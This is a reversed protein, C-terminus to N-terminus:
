RGLRSKLYRRGFGTKLQVERARAGLESRCAEYYVLKVPLRFQTAPVTGSLHEEIRRRLDITSGVYLKGDSCELVYTYAFDSV